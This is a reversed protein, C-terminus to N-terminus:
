ANASMVIQDQFIVATGIRFEIRYEFTKDRQYEWSEIKDFDSLLDCGMIFNSAQGCFFRNSSGLGFTRVVKVSTGPLVFEYIKNGEVEQYSALTPYTSMLGQVLKNFNAPNMFLVLDEAGQIEVPLANVMTYASTVVDSPNTLTLTGASLAGSATAVTKYFGNFLDAPSATTDAMWLKNEITKEVQNILDKVFIQEFPLPQQATGQKLMTSTFKKNLDDVCIKDEIKIDVVSISAQTIALTNQPNFSCGSAQLVITNTLIPLKQTGKIGEVKQIYNKTNGTYVTKVIFEKGIEDIYTSLASVNLSM